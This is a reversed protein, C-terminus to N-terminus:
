QAEDEDDDGLMAFMSNLADGELDVTKITPKKPPKEVVPEIIEVTQPEPEPEQVPEAVLEIVDAPEPDPEPEPLPASLTDYAHHLVRLRLRMAMIRKTDTDSQKWVDKSLAVSEEPPMALLKGVVRNFSRPLARPKKLPTKQVAEPM